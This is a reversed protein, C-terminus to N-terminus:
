LHKWKRRHVIAHVTQMSVGFEEALAKLSVQRPVYRSRISLVQEDSLKHNSKNTGKIRPIVPAAHRNNDAHTMWELNEVRNDAKNLNKHNVQHNQTPPDGLFALAVLRHVLAVKRVKNKCLILQRYGRVYGPSLFESKKRPSPYNSRVRGHSSVEYFGEYGLVPKWIENM